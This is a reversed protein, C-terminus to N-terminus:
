KADSRALLSPSPDTWRCYVTQDKRGPQETQVDEESKKWRVPLLHSSTKNTQKNTQKNTHKKKREKDTEAEKIKDQKIRNQEM